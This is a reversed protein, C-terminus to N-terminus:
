EEEKENIYTYTGDTNDVVKTVTELDSSTTYPFLTSLAGHQITFLISNAAVEKIEVKYPDGSTGDGTVTIFDGGEVTVSANAIYEIYEEITNYTDGDVIVPGSNLITEFSADISATIRIVFEEEKENIYTYTGDTNDVVKTVTE